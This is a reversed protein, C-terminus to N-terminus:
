HAAGVCFVNGAPDQLVTWDLGPVSHEEIEKAGLSVLRAVEGARDETGFDVHVRNKGSREEPVKQLALYPLDAGLPRFIIFEGGHDQDVSVGLAKSWFDVVDRPEVCDITVGGMRITM